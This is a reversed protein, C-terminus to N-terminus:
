GSAIGESQGEVVVRQAVACLGLLHKKLLAGGAPSRDRATPVPSPLM